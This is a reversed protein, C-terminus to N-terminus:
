CFDTMIIQLSERGQWSNIDPYYAIKIEIDSCGSKNYIQDVTSQGYRMTLFDHWKEMDGFYLMDFRRGTQDLIQYKGCNKNKGMIRGSLVRIGRAAFVPKSNGNGFPELLSFEKVLQMSAYPLPLEMDIHKVEEFDAETLMCNANLRDRLQGINEVPLSLGAAMKHGGFKTFLDKCASLEAFMDYNETSRGSGKAGEAANTLVITPRGYKERVRGAVIGAISEHLDPQYLVLVKPLNSSQEEMERAAADVGEQTMMKRSDNLAKLDGAIKAADNENQATLLELGRMANDLRGTANLCPGIVFGMHYGTLNKEDLGNVQILSRLGINETSGMKKLGERVLIRNEDQLPMVDCVTSLAAFQLLEDFLVAKETEPFSTSKELLVQMFKYAVVGGCIEKFTITCDKRKPDVVADAPPLIQEGSEQDTPVEHHDTVIVTMGLEKALAIQEYAAIGNDCTIITDVGDAEAERVLRENLGYGDKIRDPLMYDIAASGGLKGAAYRLGTLLIYTSCIGDVDYDGIIRVHSGSSLQETMRGAAKDMDTIEHPDHLDCCSGHLYAEIEEATTVDRNRILRATIPSIHFEEAIKNFDARKATIMWKAM